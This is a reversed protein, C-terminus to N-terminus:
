SIFLRNVINRITQRNCLDKKTASTSKAVVVFVFCLLAVVFLM